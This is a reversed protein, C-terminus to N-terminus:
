KLTSTLKKKSRRFYNINYSLQYWLYQLIVCSILDGSISFLFLMVDDWCYIVLLGVRCVVCQNFAMAMASSWQHFPVNFDKEWGRLWSWTLFNSNDVLKSIHFPQNNFIMDNRLKWISRTAAIWSIKWRRNTDKSGALTSHQLFNDMPRYHLVRDEKVQSNFEWQLPLFNKCTFFCILPLNLNAKVSPVFTMTLRLKDGLYTRRLPFGIGFYDGVLLYLELHSKLTGFSVFVQVNIM